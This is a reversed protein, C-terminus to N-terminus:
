AGLFYRCKTEGGQRGQLLLSSQVARREPTVLEWSYSIAPAPHTIEAPLQRKIEEEREAVGRERVTWNETQKMVVEFFGKM